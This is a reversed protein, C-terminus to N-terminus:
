YPATLETPVAYSFPNGVNRQTSGRGCDVKPKASARWIKEQGLMLDEPTLGVLELVLKRRVAEAFADWSEVAIVFSAPGGIVCQRYYNELDVLTWPMTEDEQTLLPLGNIAIGDAVTRDRAAIVPAGENNPGDGSIDIVKRLGEYANSNIAVRAHELVGSISTRRSPPTPIGTLQAAFREASASDNILMWDIVVTQADAGAWEVYSVAVQGIMGNEIAEIVAPSRLAAAYGRRQLELEAESMSRSVDVALLLEVDVELPTAAAPLTTAALCVLATKLLSKM